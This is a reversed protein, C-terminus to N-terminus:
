YEPRRPLRPNALLALGLHEARAKEMGHAECWLALQIQADSNRGARSKTEQYGKQDGGPSVPLDIPGTALLGSTVLLALMM